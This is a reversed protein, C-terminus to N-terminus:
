CHFGELNPISNDIGILPESDDFVDLFLQEVAFLKMDVM